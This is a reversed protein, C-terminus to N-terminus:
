GLFGLDAIGAKKEVRAAPIKLSYGGAKQTEEQPRACL